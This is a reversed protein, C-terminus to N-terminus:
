PAEEPTSSRFGVGRITHIYRPANPDDGLKKRLSSVHVDLTKDSGFWNPDWVEDMLEGRRVVVGPRELLMRLLEFEKLALDLPRGAVAVTRTGLNMEVDGLRLVDGHAVSPHREAPIRRLVARIRAVLEPSDFPKVIYDDAGLELGVVRDVPQDRATVMLVPVTSDRRIERLLDRGDGDPLMVDLLVVDPPQDRFNSLGEEATGALAVAFGERRLVTALPEAISEEDEILLVRARGEARSEARGDAGSEARGEARNSEVRTIQV